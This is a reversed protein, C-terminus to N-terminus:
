PRPRKPPLVPGQTEAAALAQDRLEILRRMADDSGGTDPHATKAAERFAAKIDDAVSARSSGAPLAPRTPAIVHAIQQSLWERAQDYAEPRTRSPAVRIWGRARGDPSGAPTGAGVAFVGIPAARLRDPQIVYQYQTRGSSSKSGGGMDRSQGAETGLHTGFAKCVAEPDTTGGAILDCGAHLIREGQEGLSHMSQAAMVLGLNQSRVQEVAVALNPGMPHDLIAGAEDLILTTRRSGPGRGQRWRNFGAILARTYIVSEPRDGPVAVIVLRAQSTPNEWTWTEQRSLRAVVRQMQRLQGGVSQGQSLKKANASTANAMLTQRAEASLDAHEEPHELIGILESISGWAATDAAELAGITAAYHYAVASDLGPEGFLAIIAQMRGETLDYGAGKEGSDFTIACDIDLAMAVLDVVADETGKGDVFVVDEGAELLGRIKHILYTTKGSGSGALCVERTPTSGANATPVTVWTCHGRKARWWRWSGCAGALAKKQAEPTGPRPAQRRRWAGRHDDDVAVGIIAPASPLHKLRATAEALEAHAWAQGLAEADQTREYRGDEILLAVGRLRWAAIGVMTILGALCWALYWAMWASLTIDGNIASTSDAWIEQGLTSAGEIPGKPDSTIRTYALWILLLGLGLGSAAIPLAKGRHALHRWAWERTALVYRLRAGGKWAAWWPWALPAALALLLALLLQGTSDPAQEKAGEIREEATPTAM